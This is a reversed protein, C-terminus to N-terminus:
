YTELLKILSAYSRTNEPKLPNRTQTILSGKFETQSADPDTPSTFDNLILFSSM